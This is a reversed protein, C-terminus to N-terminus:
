GKKKAEYQKAADAYIKPQDHKAACLRRYGIKREASKTAKGLIRQEDDKQMWEVLVLIRPNIPSGGSDLSTPNEIRDLEIEVKALTGWYRKWADEAQQPHDIWELLGVQFATRGKPIIQPISELRVGEKTAAQWLDRLWRDPTFESSTWEAEPSPWKQRLQAVLTRLEAKSM